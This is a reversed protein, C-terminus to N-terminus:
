RDGHACPNTFSVLILVSLAVAIERSTKYQQLFMRFPFANQFATESLPKLFALSRLAVSFKEAFLVLGKWRGGGRGCLSGVWWWHKNYLFTAGLCLVQLKFNAVQTLCYKFRLFFGWNGWGAWIFTFHLLNHGPKTGQPFNSAQSEHLEPEWKLQLSDLFCQDM